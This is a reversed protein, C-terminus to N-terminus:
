GSPNAAFYAETLGRISNAIHMYMGVGSRPGEASILPRPHSPDPFASALLYLMAPPLSPPPLPRPSPLSDVKLVDCSLVKINELVGKKEGGAVRWGTWGLGQRQWGQEWCEEGNLMRGGLWGCLHGAAHQM